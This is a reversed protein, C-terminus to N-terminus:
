PYTEQNTVSRPESLAQCTTKLTLPYALCSVLLWVANFGVLINEEFHVM